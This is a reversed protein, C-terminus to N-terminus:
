PLLQFSKGGDRSVLVGKEDLVIVAADRSAIATIANFDQDLPSFPGSSGLGVYLTSGTAVLVKSTTWEVFLIGEPSALPEFTAGMDTSLYLQGESAILLNSADVPNVALSTLPPPNLTSWTRGADRSAVAAGYNAAVGVFSASAAELLHFDVEGTLVKPTWTKGRDTSMLIGLPDPFDQSPGPHGSAYFVGDDIALGMVDFEDGQLQWGDGGWLYLGHHSALFFNEGDTAVSHVHELDGLSVGSEGEASCGSLLLAAVAIGALSSRAM